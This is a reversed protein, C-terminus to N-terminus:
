GPGGFRVGGDGREDFGVGGEEKADGVGDEAVGGFGFVDHLVGEEADHFMAASKGFDAVEADPEDADGPVEREVAAAADPGILEVFDEGVGEDAVICGGVDGKV